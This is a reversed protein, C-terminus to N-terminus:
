DTDTYAHETKCTGTSGTDCVLGWSPFLTPQFYIHPYERSHETEAKSHCDVSGTCTFTTQQCFAGPGQKEARFEIIPKHFILKNYFDIRFKFNDQPM